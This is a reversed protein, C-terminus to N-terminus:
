FPAPDNVAPTAEKPSSAKAGDVPNVALSLFNVGSKATKKWGKLSKGDFLPRWGEPDVPTTSLCCCSSLALTGAVIHRVGEDDETVSIVAKGGLTGRDEPQGGSEPYFYTRDLYVASQGQEDPEVKRVKATFEVRYPDSMYAREEFDM